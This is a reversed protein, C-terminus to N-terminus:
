PKHRHAPHTRRGPEGRVLTKKGGCTDVLTVYKRARVYVSLIHCEVGLFNTDQTNYGTMSGLKLGLSFGKKPNRHKTELYEEESM